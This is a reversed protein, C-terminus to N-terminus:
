VLLHEHISKVARKLLWLGVPVKSIAAAVRSYETNGIRNLVTFSLPDTPYMESIQISLEFKAFAATSSFLLKVENSKVDTRVINYKAGWKMLYEVEEGLLKCRSVVLSVDFLLQPVNSQMKCTERLYDKKQIFQIILRHVLLSSPPAAEENLQSMLIIRSIRRCLQNNCKEGDIEDGFLFTLELSDHLFVFTARTDTWNVMDWEAFCPEQLRKDLGRAEDQLCGLHTLVKEKQQELHSKERIAIQELSIMNELEFQMANGGPIDAWNNKFGQELRATEIQLSSICDDVEEILKATETISSQLEVVQVQAKHLLKSYISVKAEHALIKSKKAYMSKRNKLTTGFLMLENESCMRMEEWLLSSVETLPKDQMDTYLKLEETTQYLTHCEEEYVQLKPQYIFLDLMLDTASLTEYNGRNVPLESCRPKQILARIGLLMFFEKVTITGDQFKQGYGNNCPLQSDMQSYQQSSLEVSMGEGRSDHSSSSCYTQEMTKSTHSSFDNRSCEDPSKFGVSKQTNQTDDNKRVKKERHLKTDDEPDRARKHGTVSDKSLQDNLNEHLAEKECLEEWAGEPVEYQFLSNGDHDDLCAPLMEEDIYHGSDGDAFAKLSMSTRYTQTPPKSNTSPALEQLNCTSSHRKSPLKPQLMNVSLRNQLCTEKIPGSGKGIPKNQAQIDKISVQENFLTQEPICGGSTPNLTQPLTSLDFCSVPATHNSPMNKSKETLSRIKLQIDAISRRRKEKQSPEFLSVDEQVNNSVKDSEHKDSSFEISEAISCKLSKNNKPLSDILVKDTFDFKVSINGTQENIKGPNYQSSDSQNNPANFMKKRNQLTIETNSEVVSEGVRNESFCFSVRKSLRHKKTVQYDQVAGPYNVFAESQESCLNGPVTEQKQSASSAGTESSVSLDCIQSYANIPKHDGATQTHLPITETGISPAGHDPLANGDLKIYRDDLAMDMKTNANKHDSVIGEYNDSTLSVISSPRKIENRCTGRDVDKFEQGIFVNTSTIPFPSPDSLFYTKEIGAFTTKKGQEFLGDAVMSDFQTFENEESSILTESPLSETFNNQKSGKKETTDIPPKLNNEGNQSTASPINSMEVFKVVQVNERNSENSNECCNEESNVKEVAIHARTSELTGQKCSPVCEYMHTQQPGKNRTFTDSKLMEADTNVTFDVPMDKSLLSTAKHVPANSEVPCNSPTAGIKSEIATTHCKMIEMEGQNCTTQDFFGKSLHKDNNGIVLDINATTESMNCVQVTEDFICFSKRHSPISERKSTGTFVYSQSSLDLEIQECPLNNVFHKSPFEVLNEEDGSANKKMLLRNKSPERLLCNENIQVRANNTVEESNIDKLETQGALPETGGHLAIPKHSPLDDKSKVVSHSEMRAPIHDIFVTNSKTIDMDAFCIQTIQTKSLHTAQLKEVEGLVKNEIAITNTRTLDMDEQDLSNFIKDKSLVSMTSVKEVAKAKDTLPKKPYVTIKLDDPILDSPGTLKIFTNKYKNKQDDKAREDTVMSDIFVTNSKTIDMDDASIAMTKLIGSQSQLEHKNIGDIVATHSKTYEMDDELVVTKDPCPAHTIAKNTSDGPLLIRKFTVTNGCTMDMDDQNSIFVGTNGKLPDPSKQCSMNTINIHSGSFSLESKSSSVLTYEKILDMKGVSGFDNKSELVFDKDPLCRPVALIYDDRQNIALCTDSQFRKSLTDGDIAVTHSQTIDMDQQDCTFVVTKNNNSENITPDMQLGATEVMTIEMDDLVHRTQNVANSFLKEKASTFHNQNICTTHSQTLEMDDGVTSFFVTRNHITSLRSCGNSKKDKLIPKLKHTSDPLSILKSDIAITHSKTLEMDDQDSPFVMTNDQITRYVQGGLKRSLVDAPYACSGNLCPNSLSTIQDEVSAQMLVNKSDKNSGLVTNKEKASVCNHEKDTNNGDGTYLKFEKCWADGDIAVTHSQTIDMNQQEGTVVVTKNEAATLASEIRLCDNEAVTIALDKQVHKTQDTANLICNQTGNSLNNRVLSKQDIQVTHSQTLDMDDSAGSFFVTKNFGSSSRSSLLDCKIPKLNPSPICTNSTIDPANRDIAVTHSKTMEMDNQECAFLITKETFPLPDNEKSISWPNQFTVKENGCKTEAVTNGIITKSQGIDGVSKLSLPNLQALVQQGNVYSKSNSSAMQFPLLLGFSRQRKGSQVTDGTGDKSFMECIAPGDIAVTHSRTMDMDEEPCVTDQNCFFVNSDRKVSQRDKKLTNNFFVSDNETLEMENEDTFIVTKQNKCAVYTKTQNPPANEKLVGHIRTTHSFTMDMDDECLLTQEISDSKPPKVSAGEFLSFELKNRTSSYSTSPNGSSLNTLKHNVTPLFSTINTTHCKTLDLGDEQDKFVCTFNGTNEHTTFFPLTTKTSFQNEKSVFPFINEKDVGIKSSTTTSENGLCALFDGFKIKSQTSSTTSPQFEWLKEGATLFKCDFNSSDESTPAKLSALFLSTDIKRPKEEILGDIAVTNSTTMDMDNDSSFCITQEKNCNTINWEYVEAQHAPAQLPGHLLRDMGTIPCKGDTSEHRYFLSM